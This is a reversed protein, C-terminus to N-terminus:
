ALGPRDRLAPLLNGGGRRACPRPRGLFGHGYHRHPQGAARGTGLPDRLLDQQRGPRAGSPCAHRDTPADGFSRGQDRSGQARTRRIGLRKFAQDTWAGAALVMLGARAECEVGAEEDRLRVRVDGDKLAHASLLSCYNLTKAGLRAADLLNETVIRADDMQCDWYEAAGRLGDAALAPLLARARSARLWRHVRILSRGKLALADYVWLGARILWAPRADGAYVPVLFPLPRTLHPAIVECLVRRERLSEAVLSFDRQELYRLGGHVLKTSRSSAGFAFDHQEVLLVKM